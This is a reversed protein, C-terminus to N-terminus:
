WKIGIYFLGTIVASVAFTALLGYIWRELINWHPFLYPFILFNIVAGVFLLLASFAISLLKNL